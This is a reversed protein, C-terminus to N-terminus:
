EPPVLPPKKEGEGEPPSLTRKEGEGEPLSLTRKEGEGEPLLDPHPYFLIMM